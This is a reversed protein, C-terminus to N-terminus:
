PTAVRTMVTSCRRAMMSSQPRSLSRWRNKFTRASASSSRLFSSRIASRWPRCPFYAEHILLLRQFFLFRAGALQEGPEQGALVCGAPAFGPHGVRAFDLGHDAQLFYRSCRPSRHPLPRGAGGPAQRRCGFRRGSVLPLGGRERKISQLSRADLSRSM